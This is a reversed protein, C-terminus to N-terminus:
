YPSPSATTPQPVETKVREQVIARTPKPRRPPRDTARPASCPAAQPSIPHLHKRCPTWRSTRCMIYHMPAAHKMRPTESFVVKEEQYQQPLLFHTIRSVRASSGRQHAGGATVTAYIKVVQAAPPQLLTWTASTARRMRMVWSFPM